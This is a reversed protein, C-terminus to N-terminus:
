NADSAKGYDLIEPESFGPQGLVEGLLLWGSAGNACTLKLWEDVNRAKQSAKGGKEKSAEILEQEATYSTGKFAMKFMGEAYYTLYTWEDGKGFSLKVETDTKEDRLTITSPKEIEYTVIPAYSIFKLKSSVVRKENWPHYTAGKELTCGISRAAHPDPEARIQTTVNKKLTVGHPYEGAWFGAKYWSADYGSASAPASQVPNLFVLVAFALLRSM